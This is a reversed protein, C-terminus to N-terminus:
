IRIGAADYLKVLFEHVLQELASKEGSNLVKRLCIVDDFLPDSLSSEYQRVQPLSLPLGKLGVGGLEFQFPYPTNLQTTAIELFNSICDTFGNEVNKMYVHPTGGAAGAMQATVAWIEGNTFIQTAATLNGDKGGNQYIIAGFRNRSPIGGRFQRSLLGLERQGVVSYLTTRPIEQQKIPILRLYFVHLHDFYYSIEEDHRGLQRAVPTAVSALAEGADWFYARKATHGRGEFMRQSSDTSVNKLCLKLAEVLVSRLRKAETAAADQDADEPLHFLIPGAKHILDFPLQDRGGYYTNQILLIRADGLARLAFGYEIAVNSNIAKKTPRNEDSSKREYECVLTVDSVFVSAQEIKKLITAALDPTGSVGHRDQDLEIQERRDRELPEEIEPPEKLAKIAEELAKRVFHRGTKGPTDSQWSWFIKM